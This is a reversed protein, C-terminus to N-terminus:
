TLVTKKHKNNNHLSLKWGTQNLSAQDYFAGGLAPEYFM